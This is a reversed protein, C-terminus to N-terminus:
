RDFVGDNEWAALSAEQESEYCDSDCGVFGYGWESKYVKPNIPLKEPNEEAWLALVDNNYTESIIEYVGPLSLLETKSTIDMIKDLYNDFDRQTMNEYANM